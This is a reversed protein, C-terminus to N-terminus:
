WYYTHRKHNGAPWVLEDPDYGKMIKQELARNERRKPRTHFVIDWWRPWNGLWSYRLHRPVPDDEWWEVRIPKLDHKKRFSIDSRQPRRPFTRARKRKYNAM